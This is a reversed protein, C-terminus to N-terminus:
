KARIRGEAGAKITGQRQAHDMIVTAVLPAAARDILVRGRKLVDYGDGGDALYDSTAIRYRKATDIPKGGITADRVRRGITAKADYTFALGSVQPFRGSLDPAKSVGHELAALLDAGSLELLVVTNNFPMERLVDARTLASGTPYLRNGRLGGGNVLAADASLSARLADAVFNGLGAEAGRVSEHRSDLPAVLNALPVNMNSDVAEAHRRAAEALTPEGAEGKTSVLRWGAPWAKIKGPAGREVVMDVAALYAGDHGAKVVLTNGEQVTAADHDHGGLVLDIGKVRRALALDQPLDLHTLAVVLEAGQARLSQVAAQAAEAEVQFRADRAGASLTPSESTLVGLLGIRVGNSEVMLTRPGGGFPKGDPEDVNTVLWPFSSEAMRTRLTDAGFDFEHNGLVAAVPELRNLLDVMHAGKTMSSAVSPSLLDGGFTLLAGPHSAREREAVTKIAALGGSDEGPMFEYVDNFHLFTVRAQEATAPQAALLLAALAGSLIQLRRM